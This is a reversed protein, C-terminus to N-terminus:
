LARALGSRAARWLTWQRRWQPLAAPKFPDYGRREMRDLTPRALAVPLLAPALAAPATAILVKAEALHARAHARTEALAARLEPSAKGAFIDDPNSGHRQLVDFPVFLQGRAAHLPFATLLGALAYAIGADMALKEISPDNGDNLIRAALDILVSSTKSAYADLEGFSGMPEDYLDFARADILEAFAQPPLRYRVVTELLAAAVPNARAEGQGARGFIDRWWQLRIEGPMPQRAQERIRAIEVNFAYLAFLPRRYKAPAFLTALFRDKDAERVLAECHPFPDSM